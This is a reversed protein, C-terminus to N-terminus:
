PPPCLAPCNQKTPSPSGTDRAAEQSTPPATPLSVTERGRQWPHGTSDGPAPPLRQWVAAGQGGDGARHGRPNQGSVPSVAVHVTPMEAALGGGSVPTLLMHGRAGTQTGSPPSVPPPALLVGEM